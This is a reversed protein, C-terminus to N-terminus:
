TDGEFTLAPQESSFLTCLGDMVICRYAVTLGRAQTFVVVGAAGSGFDPRSLVGECNELGKDLICPPRAIVVADQRHPHVAFFRQGM